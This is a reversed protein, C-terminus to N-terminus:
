YIISWEGDIEEIQINAPLNIIPRIPETRTTQYERFTNSTSDCYDADCNGINAGNEDYVDVVSYYVAQNNSKLSASIPEDANLILKVDPRLDIGKQILNKTVLPNAFRDTQDEFLNTVLLYNSNFSKFVKEVFAEDTELISYQATRFPCIQLVLTNIIGNLMNAGQSNTILNKNDNKILHSILGSTTTKGNTGTINIKEKIFDNAYILFNPCIKLTILGIIATGSSLKTIKLFLYALKAIILSLYFRFKM